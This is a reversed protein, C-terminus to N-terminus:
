QRITATFFADFMLQASFHQNDTATDYHIAIPNTAHNGDGANIAEVACHPLATLAFCIWLGLGLGALLKGHTRIPNAIKVPNLYARGGPLALSKHLWM